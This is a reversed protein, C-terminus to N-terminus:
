HVILKKHTRKLYIFVIINLALLEIIVHNFRLGDNIGYQNLIFSYRHLSSIGFPIYYIFKFKFKFMTILNLIIISFFSVTINKSISYISFLVLFEFILHMLKIVFILLLQYMSTDYSLNLISGLLIPVLINIITYIFLFSFAVSIISNFWRSSTKLRINVYSTRFNSEEEIFVSLLYIPTLNLVLMELIVIPNKEGILTGSFVNIIYQNLSISENSSIFKWMCMIISVFIISLMNYKSFLKKAFYKNIDYKRYFIEKYRNISLKEFSLDPSVNWYKKNVICLLLIFLLEIILNIYIGFGFIIGHHLIIYTNIFLLSVLPLSDINISIFSMLCTVILIKVVTNKKFFHNITYIFLSMMIFGLTMYSVIYVIPIILNSFKSDYFQLVEYQSLNTYYGNGKLGISMCIIILCQSFVFVISYICSIFIKSKFYNWYTKSRILEYENEEGLDYITILLFMPIMFYIIYHQNSLSEVIFQLPTLSGNIRNDLNFIILVFWVFLLKKSLIKTMKFKYLYKM